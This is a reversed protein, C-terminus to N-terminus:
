SFEYQSAYKQEQILNRRLPNINMLLASRATSYSCCFCEKGLTIKGSHWYDVSMRCDELHRHVASELRGANNGAYVNSLLRWDSADGYGDCNLIGIRKPLTSLDRSTGVKILKKRLSGAIYVHADRLHRLAFSISAPDCEPCNGSRTRLRHGGRACPSLGYAFFKDAERMAPAYQSKKMGSADFTSSLAIGHHELFSRQASTLTAMIKSEKPACPM